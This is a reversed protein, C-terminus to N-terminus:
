ISHLLRFTSTRSSNSFSGKRSLQHYKQCRAYPNGNEHDGRGMVVTLRIHLRHVEYHALILSTALMWDDPTRPSSTNERQFQLALQYFEWARIKGRKDDAQLPAIHLAALAVMANLLALSGNPGFAMSPIYTRWIDIYCPSIDALRDATLHLYAHMLEQYHRNREDHDAYVMSLSTHVAPSMFMHHISYVFPAVQPHQQLEAPLYPVFPAFDQFADVPNFGLPSPSRIDMGAVARNRQGLRIVAEM